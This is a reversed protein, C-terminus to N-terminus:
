DTRQRYSRVTVEVDPGTHVVANKLAVDIAMPLTPHAVVDHEEAVTISVPTDPYKTRFRNVRETVLTKVLFEVVPPHHDAQSVLVLDHEDIRSPAELLRPCELRFYISCRRRVACDPNCGGSFPPGATSTASESFLRITSYWRDFPPHSPRSLHTVGTAARRRDIM